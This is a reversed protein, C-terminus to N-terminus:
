GLIHWNFVMARMRDVTWATSPDSLCEFWRNWQRLSVSLVLSYNGGGEHQPRYPHPSANEPFYLPPMPPKPPGQLEAFFLSYFHHFRASFIDYLSLPSPYYGKSELWTNRPFRHCRIPRNKQRLGNHNKVDVFPPPFFWLTLVETRMNQDIHTPHFTKTSSIILCQHTRHDKGNKLPGM